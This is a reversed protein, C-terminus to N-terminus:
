FNGDRSRAASGGVKVFERNTPDLVLAAPARDVPQIEAAEWGRVRGSRRLEAAESPTWDGGGAAAVALAAKARAWARAEAQATLTKLLAARHTAASSPGYLVHVEFRDGVISFRSFKHTQTM